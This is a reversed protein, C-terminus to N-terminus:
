YGAERHAQELDRYIRNFRFKAWNPMSHYNSTQLFVIHPKSSTLQLPKKKTYRRIDAMPVHAKQCWARFEEYSM